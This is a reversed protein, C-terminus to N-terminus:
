SCSAPNSRRPRRPSPRLGIAACASACMAPAFMTSRRCRCPDRGHGAWGGSDARRRSSVLKSRERGPPVAPPPSPRRARAGHWPPRRRRATRRGSQDACRGPRRRRDGGRRRHAVHVDPQRRRRGHGVRESAPLAAHGRTRGLGVHRQRRRAQWRRSPLHDARSRRSPSRRPDADGASAGASSPPSTAPTRSAARRRRQLAKMVADILAPPLDPVFKGLPQPDENVIKM